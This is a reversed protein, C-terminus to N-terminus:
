EGTLRVPLVMIDFPVEFSFNTASTIFVPKNAAQGYFYYERKKDLYKSYITEDIYINATRDELELESVVKDPNGAVVIKKRTPFAPQTQHYEEVMMTADFIEFDGPLLLRTRELDLSFTAEPISYIALGGTLVFVTRPYQDAKAFRFFPKEKLEAKLIDVQLATYNIM